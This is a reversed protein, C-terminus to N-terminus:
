LGPATAWVGSPRAEEQGQQDSQQRGLQQYRVGQAPRSFGRGRGVDFEIAAPYKLDTDGGAGLGWRLHRPPGALPQGLQGGVIRDLGLLDNQL